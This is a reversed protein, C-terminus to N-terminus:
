SLTIIPYEDIFTEVLKHFFNFINTINNLENPLYSIAENKKHECKNLHEKILKENSQIINLCKVLHEKILKENSQIINLCKVLHKERLEQFITIFEQFFLDIM